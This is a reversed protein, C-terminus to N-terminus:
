WSFHSFYFLRKPLYSLDFVIVQIYCFNPIRRKGHQKESNEIEGDPDLQQIELKIWLIKIAYAYRTIIGSFM